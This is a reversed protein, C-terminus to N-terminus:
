LPPFDPQERVLAEYAALAADLDGSQHRALAARFAGQFEDASLTTDQVLAIGKERLAHEYAGELSRVYDELGDRRSRAMAAALKAM